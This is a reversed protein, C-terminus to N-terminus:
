FGFPTLLPTLLFCRGVKAVPSAFATYFRVGGLGKAGLPKRGHSLETNELCTWHDFMFDLDGEAKAVTDFAEIRLEAM